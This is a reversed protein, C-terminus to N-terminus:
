KSPELTRGYRKEVSRGAYFFGEVIVLHHKTLVRFVITVRREFGIIRVDPALDPRATGRHPFTELAHCTDTIRSVYGEATPLTARRAIYRLLRKLDKLAAPSLEVAYTM